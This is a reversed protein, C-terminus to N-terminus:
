INKVNLYRCIFLYAVLYLLEFISSKTFWLILNDYEKEKLDSQTIFNGRIIIIDNKKPHILKVYDKVNKKNEISM